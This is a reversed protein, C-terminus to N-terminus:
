RLGSSYHRALMHFLHEPIPWRYIVRDGGGESPIRVIKSVALNSISSMETRSKVLVDALEELTEKEFAKIDQDEDVINTPTYGFGDEKRVGNVYVTTCYVTGHLMNVMVEPLPYKNIFINM